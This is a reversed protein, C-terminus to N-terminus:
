PEEAVAKAASFAITTHAGVVFTDFRFVPDFLIGFHDVLGHKVTPKLVPIEKLEEKVHLLKKLDIHLDSGNLFPPYVIIKISFQPNYVVNVAEKIPKQFFKKVQTLVFENSVGIYVLKEKEDIDVVGVKNLFSFIKKHDHSTALQLIIKEWLERLFQTKSPDYQQALDILMFFFQSVLVFLPM